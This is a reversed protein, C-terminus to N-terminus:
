DGADTSRRGTGNGAGQSPGPRIEPQDAYICVWLGQTKKHRAQHIRCVKGWSHIGRIVPAENMAQQFLFVNVQGKHLWLHFHDAPAFVM